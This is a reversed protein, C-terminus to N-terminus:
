EGFYASLEGILREKPVIKDEKLHSIVFYATDIQRLAEVMQRAKERDFPPRTFYLDAILAYERDINVILSGETHPSVCPLIEVTVGDHLVLPGEVIEGRGVAEYTKKGVYLSRCGLREINGTHDRHWHSLIVVKEKPIGELYRLAEESNGVDYIYCYKEGELVYVEASLPEEAAPLYSLRETIAKM